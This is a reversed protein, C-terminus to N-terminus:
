KGAEKFEHCKFCMDKPPHTKKLPNSKGEAHCAQCEQKTKAAIHPADSPIFPPKKATASLLYLVGVVALIGVAFLIDRKKM